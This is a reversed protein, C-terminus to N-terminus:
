HTAVSLSRSEHDDIAVQRAREIRDQYSQAAEAVYKADPIGAALAAELGFRAAVPLMGELFRLPEYLGLVARRLRPRGKEDEEPLLAALRRLESAFSSGALLREEHMQWDPPEAAVPQPSIYRGRSEISTKDKTPATSPCAESSSPLVRSSPGTDHKPAGSLYPEEGCVVEWDHRLFNPVSQPDVSHRGWAEYDKNLTVVRPSGATPATLEILVGEALLDDLDEKLGSRSRGTAKALMGLSVGAFRRGRDGDTLRVVVL